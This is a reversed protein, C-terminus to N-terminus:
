GNGLVGRRPDLQPGNGGALHAGDPLRAPGTARISAGPGRLRWWGFWCWPRSRSWRRTQFPGHRLRGIPHGCPVLLLPWNGELTPVFLNLGVTAGHDPSRPHTQSGILHPAKAWRRPVKRPVGVHDAGSVGVRVEQAPTFRNRPNSNRRLEGVKGERFGMDPTELGVDVVGVLSFPGMGM